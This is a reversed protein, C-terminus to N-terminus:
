RKKKNLGHRKVSQVMSALENDRIKERKTKEPKSGQDRAVSEDAKEKSSPKIQQCRMKVSRIETSLEYKKRNSDRDDAKGREETLVKPEAPVPYPREDFEENHKQKRLM